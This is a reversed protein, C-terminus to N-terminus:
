LNVQWITLEDHLQFGLADNIKRMSLNQVANETAIYLVEPREALVRQLMAAKLFLGLGKGRFAAEVGTIQQDASAPRQSDFNLATLGVLRGSADDQVALTWRAIRRRKLSDEETRLLEQTLQFQGLNLDGVPIDNFLRTLEVADALREDPCRDDWWVPSFGPPPVCWPALQDLDLTSLYLRSERETLGPAAGIATLFAAGAPMRGHSELTLTTRGRERARAHIVSFLRRGLGKRRHTPLISVGGNALHRRGDMDFMALRATGVIEGGPRSATWNEVQIHAPIGALQLRLGEPTPIPEDPAREAHMAERFPQLRLILADTYDEPCYRTIRIM